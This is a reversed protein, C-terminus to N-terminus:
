HLNPYTRYAVVTATFPTGKVQSTKLVVEFYPLEALQLRKLFSSLESESLIFKGAAETAEASTGEILLLKGNSDPNPLYAVVCYGIDVTGNYTQQEGAKPTRNIVSDISLDGFNQTFNLNKDFLVTWPNSTRSGLLIVNDDKLLSPTYERADYLHIKENLPDLAEIRQALRFENSSVLVKSGILSLLDRVRTDPEKDQFQTLYNRSLYDDFNTSRNSNSQILLLSEDSMVVDTIRNTGLFGSWLAALAPYHQWHDVAESLARNQASLKYNQIWLAACGGIALVSVIIGAIMWRSQSSRPQAAQLDDPQDGAPAVLPAPSEVITPAEPLRNRFIPIYSGRPIEMVLEQDLGESSFYAEIRKRLESASVRVITDVSTDYGDPREFVATGIEQERIQDCGDFLARRSIYILLQQLRAARRLHSSAAVEQVLTWCAAQDLSGNGRLNTALM